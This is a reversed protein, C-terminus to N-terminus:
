EEISLITGTFSVYKTYLETQYGKNIEYTRNAYYRGDSQTMSSEVTLVVRYRDESPVRIYNGEMDTTGIEAPTVDVAVISGIEIGNKAEFLKDGVQINEEVLSRAEEIVVTYQVTQTAVNVATKDLVFYRCYIGAAIAVIVLIVLIDIVSILGFLRGNKDMIKKM